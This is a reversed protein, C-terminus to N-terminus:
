LRRFKGPAGANTVFDSGEAWSVAPRAAAARVTECGRRGFSVFPRARVGVSASPLKM